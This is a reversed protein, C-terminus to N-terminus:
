KCYYVKLSLADRSKDQGKVNNKEINHKIRDYNYPGIVKHQPIVKM